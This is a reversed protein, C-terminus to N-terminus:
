AWSLPRSVGYSFTIIIRFLISKLTTLDARRKCSGAIDTRKSVRRSVYWAREYWTKSFLQRIGGILPRDQKGLEERLQRVCKEVTSIEDKIMAEHNSKFWDFIMATSDDAAGLWCYTMYANPYLIPMLPIQESKEANDQQNICLADTWFFLSKKMPITKRIARLASDLSRTVNIVYRPHGSIYIPMCATPDGWVYSM